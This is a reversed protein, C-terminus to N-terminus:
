GKVDGVNLMPSNCSQAMAQAHRTYYGGDEVIVVELILLLLRM